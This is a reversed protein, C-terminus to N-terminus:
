IARQVVGNGVFGAIRPLTMLRSKVRSQQAANLKGRWLEEIVGAADVLMMTPFGQVGISTPSVQRVDSVDLPLQQLYQRSTPVDQPFLAVVAVRRGDTVALLERYFPASDRCYPCTASLVLVLTKGNREWPIDGLPLRAGAQLSGREALGPRNDRTHTGWFRDVAIAVLSAAAAIIAVNVIADVTIALKGVRMIHRRGRSHKQTNDFRIYTGTAPRAVHTHDQERQAAQIANTCDYAHVRGLAVPVARHGRNRSACATSSAAGM